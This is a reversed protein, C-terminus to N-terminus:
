FFARVGESLISQGLLAYFKRQDRQRQQEDYGQQDEYIRREWAARDRSDQLQQLALMKNNTMETAQNNLAMLDREHQRILDDNRWGAQQAAQQQNFNLINQRHINDSTAQLRRDKREEAAIRDAQAIRGREWSLKPDEEWERNKAALRTKQAWENVGGPFKKGARWIADKLDKTLIPNGAADLPSALVQQELDAHDPRLWRYADIAQPVLTAGGLVTVGGGLLAGWM